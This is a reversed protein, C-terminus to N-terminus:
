SERFKGPCGYIPRMARDDKRYSLQRTIIDDNTVPVSFFPMEYQRHVFKLLLILQLCSVYYSMCSICKRLFLVFIAEVQSLFAFLLAHRQFEIEQALLDFM